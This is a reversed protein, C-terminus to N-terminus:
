KRPRPTLISNEGPNGTAGSSSFSGPASVAQFPSISPFWKPDRHYGLCFALRTILSMILWLAVDAEWGSSYEGFVYLVMTEITYEGPKTYEGRRLCQVTRLRYEAALEFTRGRWEQPEDGVKHYSLMALCMVSYLLGLWSLSTKSPDHWHNRLQQHFTPAHIISVSGDMSNFYRNCLTIVAFKSPLKALIEVGSAPAVGLLLLPGDRESHSQSSSVREHCNQLEKKHYLFYNKVESIDSLLIHWHTQGLYISKGKDADVKLVGISAALDDDIDEEDEDAPATGDDVGTRASSGSETNAQSNGAPPSVDANPGDHMLSLVLNELRDIRNQM